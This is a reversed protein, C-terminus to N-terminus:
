AKHGFVPAGLGSTQYTDNIKQLITHYELELELPSGFSMPSPKLTKTVTMTTSCNPDGSMFDAEIM